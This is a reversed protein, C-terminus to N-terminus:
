ESHKDDRDEMDVHNINSHQQDSERSEESFNVIVLSPRVLIRGGDPFSKSFGMEVVNTIVGQPQSTDSTTELCEHLEANFLDGPRTELSSVGQRDLCRQLGTQIEQLVANSASFKICLDYVHLLSRLLEYYENLLTEREKWAQTWTTQLSQLDQELGKFYSGLSALQGRTTRMQTNLLALPAVSSETLPPQQRSPSVKQRKHKSSSSM